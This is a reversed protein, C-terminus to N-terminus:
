VDRGIIDLVHRSRSIAIFADSQRLVLDEINDRQIEQGRRVGLIMLEGEAFRQVERVTKGILHAHEALLLEDIEVGLSHWDLNRGGQALEGVEPAIISHAIRLGGITAPLIVDNAGAQRLKKETSVQEGRALITIQQSLNRATLTIFVNLADQPLVTALTTARKVGVFELTAEDTADGRHANFGDTRIQAVREEDRDIVVFPVGAEFLERALTQGMRGYGCIIVHDHLHKMHRAARLTETTHRLEGETVAKTIGGLTIVVGAWGGLIVLMTWVREIVTDVPQTEGYGVSFVSIIVMYLADFPPWDLLIYGLTSILIILAFFATSPWIAMFSRWADSASDRLNELEADSLGRRGTRGDTKAAGSDRNM